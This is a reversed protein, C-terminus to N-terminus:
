RRRWREADPCTAWHTTYRVRDDLTQQGALVEARGAADLVITGDSTPDADLPMLKDRATRVWRIRASCSRCRDVGIEAGTSM